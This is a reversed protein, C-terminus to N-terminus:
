VVIKRGIKGIGGKDLGNCDESLVLWAVDYVKISYDKTIKVLDM